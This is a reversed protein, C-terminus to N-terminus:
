EIGKQKKFNYSTNLIYEYFQTLTSNVIFSYSPRYLKRYKELAEGKLGTVRSVTKESFRYDIYRDKEEQLLRKQFALNQKNRRFRFMGILADLDLGAPGGPEYTSRIAPKERDFIKAYNERNELSDSQYSNTFVTIPNLLRYKEKVRVRLSIDFSTYNTMARVPFQITPKGNYFFSISDTNKVLIHYAGLSDTIARTGSTSYVDVGPVVYLKTSDYVTGSIIIQGFANGDPLAQLLFLLGCLKLILYKNM